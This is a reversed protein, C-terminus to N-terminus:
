ASLAALELRRRLHQMRWAEPAAPQEDLVEPEQRTDEHTFQLVTVAQKVIDRDAPTLPLRRLQKVIAQSFGEVDLGAAVMLSRAKVDTAPYAPFVVPGVDYLRAVKIIERLQVGNEMRWTDTEIDFSFSQGNLALSRVETIVDRCVQTDMPDAQMYLGRKDEQLALTRNVTMAGDAREELKLSELMSRRELMGVSALASLGPDDSGRFSNSQATDSM